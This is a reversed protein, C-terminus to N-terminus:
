CQDSVQATHQSVYGNFTGDAENSDIGEDHDSEVAADKEVDQEDAAFDISDFYDDASYSIQNRKRKSARIASTEPAM